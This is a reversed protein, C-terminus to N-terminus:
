RHLYTHTSRTNQCVIRQLSPPWLSLLLCVPPDRPDKYTMVGNVNLGRSTSNTRLDHILLLILTKLQEDKPESGGTHPPTSSSECSSLDPKAEHM